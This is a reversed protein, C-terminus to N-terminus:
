LEIWYRRTLGGGDRARRDELEGGCREIVTASGLNDDDCTVLVRSLGLDRATDLARGLMATAYGRRRHEAVVGFGIHGGYGRLFDTLRHRLSLRGVIEGAVVAVLYTQPIWGEPLGRGHATGNIWEVYDDFREFEDFRFAFEWGPDSAAFSALAREFAARDGLELPRLTLTPPM